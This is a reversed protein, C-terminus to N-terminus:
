RADAPARVPAPMGRCGQCTQSGSAQVGGGEVCVGKLAWWWQRGGYVFVTGAPSQRNPGLFVNQMSHCSM